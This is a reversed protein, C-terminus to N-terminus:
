LYIREGESFSHRDCMLETYLKLASTLPLHIM